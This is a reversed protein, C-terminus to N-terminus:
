TDLRTADRAQGNRNLRAGCSQCTWGGLMAQRFGSPIRFKPLLKGCSSCNKRPSLAIVIFIVLGAVTGSAIGTALYSEM